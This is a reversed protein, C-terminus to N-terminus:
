VLWTRGAAIFLVLILMTAAPFSKKMPDQVKIHMAIAGIMLLAIGLAAPTILVPWWIGAILCAALAVKLFGVVYMFWTPLGYVAFEKSMSQAEGGRWATPKGFRFLWVNFLTVAVIIQVVIIIWEM